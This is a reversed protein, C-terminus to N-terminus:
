LSGAYPSWVKFATLPRCKHSINEFYPFSNWKVAICFLLFALFSGQVKTHTNMRICFHAPKLIYSCSLIQSFSAFVHLSFSDWATSWHWNQMTVAPMCWPVGLVTHIVQATPPNFQTSSNTMQHASFRIVLLHCTLHWVWESANRQPKVFWSIM